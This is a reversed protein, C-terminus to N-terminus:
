FAGNVRFLLRTAGDHTDPGAVLVHAGVLDAQLHEFVRVRVGLGTSALGYYQRQEPLPNHISAAGADGFVFGRLEDVTEWALRTAAPSRLEAQITGGQDGLAEAELYGRVTDVGGIAFQENSILPNATLQGHLRVSSQLDWPLDDRRSADLRVYSFNPAALYRKQDFAQANSGIGETGLVLTSTLMTESSKGIWSAQYQAVLPLYAIPTTTRDAGLLTTDRFDKYDFGISLNHSFEGETGLPVQLRLGFVQGNGLVDTGGVTAVNSNSHLYSVLVALNSNPVRYLYSATLIQSDAPQEPAVQYSVSVTDGRQWLNGYSLAATTRLPTTNASQRNTLEVSGHLPLMDKVNLDVDVTGPMAGPRLVPTVTRDPWQNLGVIDRQVDNLNPVRGEALSPAGKRIDSLAFYRAGKVRLRGVRRETVRLVVIGDAPDQEPIEATATPYGHDAYLADLAVRAHDVDDATRGPGLFPTVAAEIMAAPLLSNGEIRFEDIDFHHPEQASAPACFMMYM